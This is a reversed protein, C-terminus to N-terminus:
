NIQCFFMTTTVVYFLVNGVVSDVKIPKPKSMFRPGLVSIGFDTLKPKMNDDLVINNPKIHRHIITRKAGAHLYHLGRAAGICIEVRKKGLLEMGM